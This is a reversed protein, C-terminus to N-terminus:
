YIINGEDYSIETKAGEKVNKGYPFALKDEGTLGSVIEVYQGYLTSGTQVYRKELRGDAGQRYVYSRNGESRIYAKQLFIDEDSVTGMSRSSYTISVTDGSLLDEGDEIYAVMPYFSSNPNGSGDNLNSSTPYDSIELVEAEYEEDTDYSTCYVTGGVQVSDLVLESVAAEVYIGDDSRVIIAPSDDSPLADATYALTVEGDTKARVTAADVEKKAEKYEIRAEKLDMKADALEKEKESLLDGSVADDDFDYDEDYDYDYDWSDEEGDDYDYDDYDADSDRSDDEAGSDPAAKVTLTLKAKKGGADAIIKLKKATENKAVTLVGDKLTTDDSRNSKLEWRVSASGSNAGALKVKFEYTEGATVSKKAPRIKISDVSVQNEILDTVTYWAFSSLAETFETDPSVTISALLEGASGDENLAYERFLTYEEDEIFTKILSGKIHGGEALDFLHPSDKTGEGGKTSDDPSSVKEKLDSDVTEDATSDTKYVASDTEYVASDTGDAALDTGYAAVLLHDALTVVENGNMALLMVAGNSTGATMAASEEEDASASANKLDEVEKELDEIQIKALRIQLKKLKLELEEEEMDYKLLKDGKKVTDGEEVYIKKVEMGSDAYVEQVYDSSLTGTMESEDEFWGANNLYDMPYVYVVANSQPNLGYVCVAAILLGALICLIIAVSRGVHTKM